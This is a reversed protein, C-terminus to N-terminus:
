LTEVTCYKSRMERLTYKNFSEGVFEIKTTKPHKKLYESIEMWEIRGDSSRIVLMVPYAHYTWYDAWRPKTIRFIRSRDKKEYTYSNGSKLQLYLRKGTAKGNDDKFEIEADLGNDATLIPRYIQGAEGCIAMVEGIMIQEKDFQDLQYSINQLNLETEENSTTENTDTNFYHLHKVLYDCYKNESIYTMLDDYEETEKSVASQDKAEIYDDPYWSVSYRKKLDRYSCNGKLFDNYKAENINFDFGLIYIRSKYYNIWGHYLLYTITKFDRRTRPYSWMYSDLLIYKSISVTGIQEQIIIFPYIYQGDDSGYVVNNNLNSSKLAEISFHHRKSLDNIFKGLGVIDKDYNHQSYMYDTKCLLWDINIYFFDALWEILDNNIKKLLNEKNSIDFLSIEFKKNIVIPIENIGINHLEFVKYFRNIMEDVHTEVHTKELEIRQRDNLALTEFNTNMNNLATVIETFIKKFSSLM